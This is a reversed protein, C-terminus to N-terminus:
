RSTSKFAQVQLKKPSQHMSKVLKWGFSLSDIDQAIMLSEMTEALTFHGHEYQFLELLPTTSFLLSFEYCTLLSARFVMPMPGVFSFVQVISMGLRGEHPLSSNQCPAQWLQEWMLDCWSSARDDLCQLGLEFIWAKLCVRTIPLSGAM